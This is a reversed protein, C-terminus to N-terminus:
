VPPRLPGRPVAASPPRSSVSTGSPRTHVSTGSPESSVISRPLGKHRQARPSAAQQHQHQDRSPSERLVSVQQELSKESERTLNSFHPIGRAAAKIYSSGLWGAHDSVDSVILFTRFGAEGNTWRLGLLCLPALRASRQRSTQMWQAPSGQIACELM